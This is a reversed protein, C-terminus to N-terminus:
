MWTYFIERGESSQDLTLGIPGHIPPKVLKIDLGTELVNNTYVRSYKTPPFVFSFLSTPSTLIM